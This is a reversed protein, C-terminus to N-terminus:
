PCFSGSPSNCFKSGWYQYRRGDWRFFDDETYWYLGDNAMWYWHCISYEWGSDPDYYPGYCGGPDAYGPGQRGGVLVTDPVYRSKPGSPRAPRRACRVRGNARARGGGRRCKKGRKAHAGADKAATAASSPAGGQAASAM